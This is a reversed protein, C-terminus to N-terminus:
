PAEQQAATMADIATDIQRALERAGEASLQHMVRLNIFGCCLILTGNDHGSVYVTAGGAYRGPIEPSTYVIESSM